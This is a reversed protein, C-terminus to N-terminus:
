DVKPSIIERKDIYKAWNRRYIPILYRVIYYATLSVSSSYSSDVEAEKNDLEKFDLFGARRRYTHYQM